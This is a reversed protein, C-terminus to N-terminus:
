LPSATKLIDIMSQILALGQQLIWTNQTIDSVSTTQLSLLAQKYSLSLYM